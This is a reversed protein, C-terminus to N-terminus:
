KCRKNKLGGAASRFAAPMRPRGSLVATTVSLRRYNCTGRWRCSCRWQGCLPLPWPQAPQRPATPTHVAAQTYSHGSRDHRQSTTQSLMGGNQATTLHNTPVTQASLTQRSPTDWNKHHGLNAHGSCASYCLCCMCQRRRTQMAARVQGAGATKLEVPRCHLRCQCLM